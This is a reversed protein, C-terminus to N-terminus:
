PSFCSLCYFERSVGPGVSWACVSCDHDVHSRVEFLISSLSQCEHTDECMFVYMVDYLCIYVFIFMKRKLTPIPCPRGVYDQTSWNPGSVWPARGAEAERTCSNFDHMRAGQEWGRNLYYHINPTFMVSTNVPWMILVSVRVEGKSDQSLKEHFLNPVM